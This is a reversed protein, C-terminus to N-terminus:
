KHFPSAIRASKPTSIYSTFGAMSINFWIGAEALPEKTTGAKITEVIGWHNLPIAKSPINIPPSTGAEIIAIALEFRITFISLSNFMALGEFSVFSAFHNENKNLSIGRKKTNKTGGVKAIANCSIPPIIM